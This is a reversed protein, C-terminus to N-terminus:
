ATQPNFDPAVGSRTDYALNMDALVRYTSSHQWADL